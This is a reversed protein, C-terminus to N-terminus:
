AMGIRHHPRHGAALLCPRPKKLRMAREALMGPGVIDIEGEAAQPRDIDPELPMHLIRHFDGFPQAAARLDIAHKIRCKRTRRPMLYPLAIKEASRAQEGDHELRKGIRSDICHQVPELEEAQTKGPSAKFAQRDRELRMAGCSWPFG